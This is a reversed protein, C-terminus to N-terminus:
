RQRVGWISMFVTRKHEKEGGNKGIKSAEYSKLKMNRAL